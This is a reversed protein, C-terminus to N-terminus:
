SLSLKSTDIEPEEAEEHEVITVGVEDM